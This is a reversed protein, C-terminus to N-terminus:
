QHQPPTGNWSFIWRITDEDPLEEGKTFTPTLREATARDVPQRRERYEDAGLMRSAASPDYVWGGERHSWSLAHYGQERSVVFVNVPQETRYDSQYLFYYNLM